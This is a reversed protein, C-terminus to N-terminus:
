ASDTTERLRALEERVFEKFVRVRAPADRGAVTIAYLQARAVMWHPLVVQLRNDALASAAVM